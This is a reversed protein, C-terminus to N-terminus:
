FSYLKRSLRVGKELGPELTPDTVKTAGTKFQNIADSDWFAYAMHLKGGGGRNYGGVRMGGQYSIGVYGLKNMAAVFAAANEKRDFWSIGHHTGNRLTDFTPNEGKGGMIQNQWAYPVEGNRHHDIYEDFTLGMKMDDGIWARLDLGDSKKKGKLWLKGIAAIVHDPLAEEAPLCKALYDDPVEFTAIYGERDKQVFRYDGMTTKVMTMTKMREKYLKKAQRMMDQLISKKKDDYLKHAAEHTIKSSYMQARVDDRMVEVAKVYGLEEMIIHRLYLAVLDKPDRADRSDEDKGPAFITNGEAGGKLTYDGAIEPDDTLYIGQGFLALDDTKAIDFEDILSSDGRYLQKEDLRHPSGGKVANIFARM